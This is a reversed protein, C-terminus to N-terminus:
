MAKQPCCGGYFLCPAALQLCVNVTLRYMTVNYKGKTDSKIAISPQPATSSRIEATVRITVGSSDANGRDSLDRFLCEMARGKGAHKASAGVRPKEANTFNNIVCM